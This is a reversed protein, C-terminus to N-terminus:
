GTARVCSPYTTLRITRTQRKGYQNVKTVVYALDPLTKWWEKHGAQSLRKVADATVERAAFTLQHLEDEDEEVGDGDDEVDREVLGPGDEEVERGGINGSACSPLRVAAAEDDGGLDRTRRRRADKAGSVEEEQLATGLTVEQHEIELLLDKLAAEAEM